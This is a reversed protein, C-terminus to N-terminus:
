TWRRRGAVLAGVGALLVAGPVPVPSPSVSGDDACPAPYSPCYPSGGGTYEGNCCWQVKECWTMNQWQTWAHPNPGGNNYTTYSTKKDDLCGSAVVLMAILIIWLPKKGLTKM